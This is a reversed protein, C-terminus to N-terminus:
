PAGHGYSTDGTPRYPHRGFDAADANGLAFVSIFGLVVMAIGLGIALFALAGLYFPPLIVRRQLPTLQHHHDFSRWYWGKAAQGNANLGWALLAFYVLEAPVGVAAASLMVFQGAYVLADGPVLGVAAWAGIMALLGFVWLLEQM